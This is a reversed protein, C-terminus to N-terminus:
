SVQESFQLGTVLILILGLNVVLNAMNDVRTFIFILDLLIFESDRTCLGFM